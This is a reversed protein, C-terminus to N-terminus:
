GEHKKSIEDFSGQICLLSKPDCCQAFFRRRTPNKVVHRLTAVDEKPKGGRKKKKSPVEGDGTVDVVNNEAQRKKSPSIKATTTTTMHVPPSRTPNPNWQLVKQRLEAKTLIDMEHLKILNGLSQHQQQKTDVTRRVNPPTYFGAPSNDMTTTTQSIIVECGDDDCAAM